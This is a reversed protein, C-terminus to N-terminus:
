SLTADNNASALHEIVTQGVKGIQPAVEPLWIATEVAEM